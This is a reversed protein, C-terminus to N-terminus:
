GDHKLERRFTLFSKIARIDYNMLPAAFISTGLDGSVISANDSFYLNCYFNSIHNESEKL